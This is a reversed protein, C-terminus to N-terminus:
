ARPSPRTSSVLGGLRRVSPDSDPQQSTPGSAVQFLEGPTSGPPVDSSVSVGVHCVVRM